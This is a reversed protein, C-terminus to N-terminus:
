AACSGPAGGHRHAPHPSARALTHPPPDSPARSCGPRLEPCVSGGPYPGATRRPHGAPLTTAPCTSACSCAAPKAGKGPASILAKARRPAADARALSCRARSGGVAWLPTQAPAPTGAACSHTCRHRLHSEAKGRRPRTGGSSRRLCKQRGDPFPLPAPPSRLRAASGLAFLLLLFNYLCAQFDHSPKM